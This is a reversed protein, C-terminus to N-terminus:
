SGHGIDGRIRYLVGVSFGAASSTGFTRNVRGTWLSNFRMALFPIGSGMEPDVVTFASTGAAFVLLHFLLSEIFISAASCGSMVRCRAWSRAACPEFGGHRSNYRFVRLPHM